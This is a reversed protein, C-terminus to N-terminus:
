NTSTFLAIKIHSFDNVVNMRVFMDLQNLVNGLHMVNLYIVNMMYTKTVHSWVPPIYALTPRLINVIKRDKWNVPHYLQGRTIIEKMIYM